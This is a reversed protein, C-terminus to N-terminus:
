QRVGIGQTRRGACAPLKQLKGSRFAMPSAAQEDNVQLQFVELNGSGLFAQYGRELTAATTLLQAALQKHEESFQAMGDYPRSPKNREAESGEEMLVRQDRYKERLHQKCIDATQQQRRKTGLGM